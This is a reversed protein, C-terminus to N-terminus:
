GDNREDFAVDSDSPGNKNTMEEMEEDDSDDIDSVISENITM